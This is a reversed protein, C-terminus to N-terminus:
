LVWRYKLIYNTQWKVALAVDYLSEMCHTCHFIQEWLDSLEGLWVCLCVHNRESSQREIDNTVTNLACDSGAGTRDWENECVRPFYLHRPFLRRNSQERKIGRYWVSVCTCFTLGEDEECMLKHSTVTLKIHNFSVGNIVEWLGNPQMQGKWECKTM